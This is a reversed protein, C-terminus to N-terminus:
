SLVVPQIHIPPHTPQFHTANCVASCFMLCICLMCIMRWVHCVYWVGCMVHYWPVPLEWWWTVDLTTRACHRSYVRLVCPIGLPIDPVRCRELLHFHLITHHTIHPRLLAILFEYILGVHTGSMVVPRFYMKFIVYLINCYILCLFAVMSNLSHGCISLCWRQCERRNACHCFEARHRQTYFKVNDFSPAKAFPTTMSSLQTDTGQKAKKIYAAHLPSDFIPTRNSPYPLAMPWGEWHLYYTNVFM